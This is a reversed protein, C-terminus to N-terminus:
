PRARDSEHNLATNSSSTQERVHIRKVYHLTEEVRFVVLFWNSPRMENRGLRGVRCQPRGCAARGPTWKEFGLPARQRTPQEFNVFNDLNLSQMDGDRHAAFIRYQLTSHPIYYCTTFQPLLPQPGSLNFNGLHSPSCPSRFRSGLVGLAYPQSESM